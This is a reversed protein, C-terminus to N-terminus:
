PYPIHNGVADKGLFMGKGNEDFGLMGGGKGYVAQPQAALNGLRPGGEFGWNGYADVWYRGAIVPGLQQLRRVDEQHLERGNVFVRTNGNSADPRLPGGMNIGPYVVGAMPGGALGWAGSLKDYWYNGDIMRTRFTQELLAVEQDSLYVRNIMIRRKQTQQAAGTELRGAGRQPEAHIRTPFFGVGLAASMLFMSLRKM